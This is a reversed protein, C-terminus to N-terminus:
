LGRQEAVRAFYFSWAERNVNVRSNCGKCTAFLNRPSHNTKDYDSHHISLRYGLVEETRACLQCTYGDRERIQAKLTKCFGPAYQGNAIGGLWRPNRAGTLAEALRQIYAPDKVLALGRQRAEERREPTWTAAIKRGAEPRKRGRLAPKPRGSQGASMAARTAPSKPLRARASMQATNCPPCRKVRRALGEAGCDICARPTKRNVYQACPHCRQGTGYRPLDIGCEACSRPAVGIRATHCTWCRTQSPRTVAGCDACLKKPKNAWTCAWCLASQYGMTKGCNPCSRGYKTGDKRVLVMGHNYRM